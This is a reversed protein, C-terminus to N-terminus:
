RQLRRITEVANKSGIDSKPCSGVGDSVAIAYDENDIKYMVADQNPINSLRHSLGDDSIVVFTYDGVHKEESIM